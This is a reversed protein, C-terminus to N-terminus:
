FGLDEKVLIVTIDSKRPKFSITLYVRCSRDPSHCDSCFGTQACPTATRGFKHWNIPACISTVRRFGDEITDVIKNKGIVIVVKKPGFVTAAVRNGTGDVLIIDGNLTVANASTLFLDVCLTERLKEFSIQPSEFPDIVTHGRQRLSSVIGIEDISASDGKAVIDDATSLLDRRVDELLAANKGEKKSLLYTFMGLNKVNGWDWNEDIKNDYAGAREEFDRLYQYEGTTEWMEAAAWLRNDQDRTGYGGTRFARQNPRKNDPNNKLFAYSKAAAELCTQAYKADYPKFYRAAMALMAVFDATAASSWDTFFRKKSDDEPMIFGSFNLRTLKHSVKGSGDPDQMKLLWDTEWKIEKLFDPWGLATDPIDLSIGKLADQFHDWAIFLTGVTVGANVTYKGYDGADHWGGAGDRKSDEIGIYDQYGDQMHCAAHAYRNGNHEGLVATGCRWLYFGRM